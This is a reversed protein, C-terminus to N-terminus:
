SSGAEIDFLAQRKCYREEPFGMYTMAEQISDEVKDATKSLRMRLKEEVAKAKELAAAKDQKSYM